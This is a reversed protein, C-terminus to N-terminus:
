QKAKEIMAKLDDTLINKKVTLGLEKAEAFLAKREERVEDTSSTASELVELREAMAKNQEIILANQEKLLQVETKPKEGVKISQKIRDNIEAIKETDKVLPSKSDYCGVCEIECAGLKKWNLDGLLDAIEKEGAFKSTVVQNKLKGNQDYNAVKGM